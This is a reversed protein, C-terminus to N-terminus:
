FPSFQLKLLPTFSSVGISMQDAFKKIPVIEIGAEIFGLKNFNIFDMERFAGRNLKTPKYTPSYYQTPYECPVRQNQWNYKAFESKFAVNLAKPNYLIKGPMTKERSEKTKAKKASVRKLVREVEKLLHPYKQDITEKGNNFSYIGVIKM